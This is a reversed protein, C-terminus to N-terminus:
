AGMKAAQEGSNKGEARKIILHKIGGSGLLTLGIELSGSLFFVMVGAIMEGYAFGKLFRGEKTPTEREM